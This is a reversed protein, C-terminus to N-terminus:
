TTLIPVVHNSHHIDPQFKQRKVDMLAYYGDIVTLAAPECPSVFFFLIELLDFTYSTIMSEWDSSLDHRTATPRNSYRRTWATGLYEGVLIM